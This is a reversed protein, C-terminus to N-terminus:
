KIIRVEREQVGFELAKDKSDFYIDIRNGRILGGTDLSIYAGLDKIEVISYLSIVDPDTAIIPLNQVRTLDLNFTTAIINNTGQQPDNASYGTIIFEEWSDNYYGFDKALKDYKLNLELYEDQLENYNDVFGSLLKLRVNERQVERSLYDAMNINYQNERILIIIILTFIM